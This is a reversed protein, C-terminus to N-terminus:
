YNLNLYNVVIKKYSIISAHSFNHWKVEFINLFVRTKPMNAFSRFAVILKMMDTEGDMRGDAQFLEAGVLCIKTFNSIHNNEFDQRSYRVFIVLVKYTSRCYTCKHYDREIIRLILVTESLLMLSFWFVCMKLELVERRLDQRKHFLTSFITSVSLGFNVIRRMSIAHQTVLAVSM